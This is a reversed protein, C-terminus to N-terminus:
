GNGAGLTAPESDARWALDQAMEEASVYRKAPDKALAKLVVAELWAPISPVLQRPPVPEEQLHKIAVAIPSDGRFPVTGTLMEYLVVGLSYLDSAPGVPEGRAQEPSFYHVSGIVTGTQT